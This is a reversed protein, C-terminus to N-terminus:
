TKINWIIEVFDALYDDDAMVSIKDYAELVTTSRPILVEGRREIAVILVRAPLKLDVITKDIAYSNMPVDVTVIDKLQGPTSTYKQKTRGLPDNVKLLRSVLPISTGQFVLSSLAVFFVLNFITGARDINAVLPYTAMIIPVSGKLGVWSILGKEPISMKSFILSTYVSVPRAIIIMFSAILIGPGAVNLVKSPYILLGLTLFMASQMLWSIGDHVLSLSKKFVFSNNGLVLGSIYVALFGNGQLVQAISYTLLVVAVSMVIYLGEIELRLKNFLWVLVKGVLYGILAGMAMQQILLPIIDKVSFDSTQMMSLIATTLIVAMPDNSGSELELLPKLDGKLHINRSRLVTFVAGADTSSIIAGILFSELIAFNLVFHIFSGVLLCTLLVGLTSLAVGSKVIPKVSNWKTDLGGSFLIYALAIIGLSQAVHADDFAIGGIGETGALMGIGLFVALAPVGLKGTAKSALVCLILLIAAGLLYVEIIQM